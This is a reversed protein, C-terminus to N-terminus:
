LDQFDLIQGAGAAMAKQFVFEACIVDEVSLGVAGALIKQDASTRGKKTGITTPLGYKGPNDNYVSVVKVGAVDGYKMYSPM